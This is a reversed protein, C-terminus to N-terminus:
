LEEKEEDKYLNPFGVFLLWGIVLFCITIVGYFAYIVVDPPNHWAGWMSDPSLLVAAPVLLISLLHKM